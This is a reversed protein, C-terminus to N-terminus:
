DKVPYSAEMAIGCKGREDRSGRHLKIYGSDGWDAGWSNKVLWYKKGDEEGYGVATVGHNLDTGCRGNFIGHSYFQFESSGADIAVSVPQHAVAAQLREEDNRPVNEYSCIEVKRNSMTDRDCKGNAGRYPYEEETTLGNKQIFQFAKDM